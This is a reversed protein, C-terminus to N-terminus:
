SFADLCQKLRQLGEKIKDEDYFTYCLRVYEQMGNKSSFLTGQRFGINFERAKERLQEGDIGPLRLWFFFGGQPTNFEAQPIERRLAADMAKLRAHYTTVLHVINKELDGAEILERVIASTFPNLGGGSDLLGSSTLRKINNPHAQLWGLRLGPALIKSFSGLSIVTELDTYAAFPKIQQGSYNLFQYVEDAVILFDHEQSKQVLKNRRDQSLTFGGPNQFTPVSYLFKPRAEKLKEELAAIVLGNKDTQIPIISLEHDAFIRLALFYTPEEVFITDGPRTFHACILDLANSIGNTVFLTDPDVQLGYGRSLFEGLAMRFYGDGQEAGYQLFSPDNKAFCAEAARRLMDLPLLAFDPDGAGLDIMGPPIYIQSTPIYDTM